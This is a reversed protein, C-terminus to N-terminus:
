EIEVSTPAIGMMRRFTRTLHAADAFGAAHAAITAGKGGSLVEIARQLRLWLLYSRFAQGTQQVFLHRFRGPSLHVEAAAEELSPPDELRRWLFRITREVRADLVDPAPAAALTSILCKAAADPKGAGAHAARLQRSCQELEKTPLPALTARGFRALLARGEASEPAVFIQATLEADSEFAHRLDPPVLVADFARWSEDPTRFKVSGSLALSIQIAHHAHMDAGGTARGIWLSGGEWCYIRAFGIRRVKVHVGHAQVDVRGSV